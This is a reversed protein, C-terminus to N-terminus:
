GVDVIEGWAATFERSCGQCRLKRGLIRGGAKSGSGCGPCAIKVQLGAPSWESWYDTALKSFHFDGPVLNELSEDTIETLEVLRDAQRRLAQEFLNRVLRGNGFHEDKGKISGAFGHLLKLRSEWPLRYHGKVALAEMIRCLDLADFDEFMLRKTFRSSLGPNSKLLRDIPAPYGALIVVLQERDDEMRKLLTQVAEAGFADQGDGVLTYAEDIFLVGGLASDILKNTKPGTQGVYEAVLGSRDTEVVHGKHLVGLAGFVRGVIRAVTTKGTGPNGVFSMHLSILTTPKGRRRREAQVKLFNALNRVEQKVADLGILADLEGLAAELRQEREAESVVGDGDLDGVPKAVKRSAEQQYAAKGGASSREGPAGDDLRVPRLHRDLEAAITRIRAIESPDAVGDIKSVLNALRLTQSEVEAGRGRLPPLAEFPRVLAKWNLKASEQVLHQLANRLHKGELRRRWLHELLEAGLLQEAANWRMDAGTVDVFTKILLGRHLDLMLRALDPHYRRALDPHDRQLEGAGDFYLGEITELTDRFEIVLREDLSPSRPSM